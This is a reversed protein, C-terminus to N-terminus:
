PAEAGSDASLSSCELVTSVGTTSAVQLDRELDFHFNGDATQKQAKM